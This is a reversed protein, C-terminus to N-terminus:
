FFLENLRNSKSMLAGVAKNTGKKELVSKIVTPRKLTNM